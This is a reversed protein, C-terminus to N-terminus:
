TLGCGLVGRSKVRWPGCRHTALEIEFRAIMRRKHAGIKFELGAIVPRGNQLIRRIPLEIRKPEPPHFTPLPPINIQHWDTIQAGAQPTPVMSLICLVALPLVHLLRRNMAFSKMSHSM